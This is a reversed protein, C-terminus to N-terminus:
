NRAYFRAILLLVPGQLKLGFRFDNRDFPAKQFYIFISLLISFFILFLQAELLGNKGKNETFKIDHQVFFAKQTKQCSFFFFFVSCMVSPFDIESPTQKAGQKVISSQRSSSVIRPIGIKSLRSM